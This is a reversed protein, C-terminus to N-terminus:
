ARDAEMRMARRFSDAAVAMLEPVGTLYWYTDSLRRHGVYASLCPMMANVDEGEAHWRLLTSVCFSHRLDHLRPRRGSFAEGRGILTWRIESFMGEASDRSLPRGGASVIMRAPARGGAKGSRGEVYGAIREATGPSVPITRSSGFKSDRVALTGAHADFDADELGLAEGIRLGCSWMLGIPFSLGKGRLGDPSGESLAARMLLCVDEESYIYPVVRDSTRGLLGPRMAPFAPDLAHAFGSFRRVTEYRQAQYSRPHGAGSCARALASEETADGGGLFAAFARLRQAEGAFDFGLAQKYEIYRSAMEEIGSMAAGRRAVAGCGQPPEGHQGERIGDDHGRARAGARGRCDERRDGCQGHEHGGDQAAWADRPVGRNGCPRCGAVDGDPGPAVAHANRGHEPLPLPNRRGEGADHCLAGAGSRDARGPAASDRVLHGGWREVGTRGDLPLVRGTRSKSGRVAITGDAWSIDDLALNAVDCARLGLMGMCLAMAADRAGRVTGSDCSALLAEFDEESLRGPVTHERRAPGNLSVADLPVCEMGKWRLFRIYSRLDSGQLARMSAGEATAAATHYDVFGHLTIARREFTGDPFVAHLFLKISAIRNRITVPKINGHISLYKGFEALEADIAADPRLESPVIRERYPKGFRYTWWRRVAAAPITSATNRPLESIYGEVIRRAEDEGAGLAEPRRKLFTSVRFRYNKSATESYGNDLLHRHFGELQQIRDM